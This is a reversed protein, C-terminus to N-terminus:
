GAASEGEKVSSLNSLQTNSAVLKKHIVWKCLQARGREFAELLQHIVGPVLLPHHSVLLNGTSFLSQCLLLNDISQLVTTPVLCAENVVLLLDVYGNPCYIDELKLVGRFLSLVEGNRKLLPIEVFAKRVLKQDQTLSPSVNSQSGEKAWLM